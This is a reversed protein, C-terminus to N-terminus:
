KHVESLHILAGSRTMGSWQLQADSRRMGSLHADSRMV